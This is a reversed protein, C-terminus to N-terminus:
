DKPRDYEFKMFSPEFLGLAHKVRKPDIADFQQKNWVYASNKYKRLWEATLDRGDLREGHIAPYEPDAAASPLFKSRGGSFAVELGDGYKFELLQRAIDPFKADYAEPRRDRIDRDSEWNRDSTHAYCAAPTAHTVRATSVVGTSKGAEEAYELLTKTEHGAVTRYDGRVVRQDISLIGENTKVGTM